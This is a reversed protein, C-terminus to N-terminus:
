PSTEIIKVGSVYYIKRGGVSDYVSSLSQRTVMSAVDNRNNTSDTTLYLHKDDSSIDVIPDWEIVGDSRVSLMRSQTPTTREPINPYYLNGNVTIDNFTSSGGSGGGVPTNPALSSGLPDFNKITQLDTYILNSNIDLLESKILFTENPASIQWPVRTIFVDPSFGDDGYVRVSLNSIYSQCYKPVIVLTGYFDNQPTFFYFQNEINLSSNGIKSSTINAINLGYKTSFTKEQGISPYSGTIYFSLESRTESSNKLIIASVEVIYQVNANFEMFNSDYASGSQILFQGMNFPVYIADRNTNVSDNKVMLYDNGSLNSPTPSSIFVTNVSKNPSYTMSLNNSSTFWYHSIHQSNYFKGLLNYYQNQTYDDQLIERAVVPEDAIISYDGNSILSKRYVKHRAVYGSFTRINRYTIDAYSQYVGYVVGGVTSTQYSTPSNNYNIFQYSVAADANVINTVTSNGKSDKYYYPTSTQLTTNNLVNSIFFSAKDYVNLIKGTLPERIQYISLDINYGTMLANFSGSDPTTPTVVPSTLTLRYDVELNQQNVSALNTDKPPNCALGNVTGLFSINHILGTSVSSTLVPVVASDVEFTPAQYFRARSTNKLTKNITINSQWKVSRGDNLTGYLILKGVGDATDNYVYAAFVFATTEKYTYVTVDTSSQAQEIYLNNGAADLCEVLIPSNAKLYTSGNFSFSNKGATFTPNFESVVFYRSLYDSDTVDAQKTYLGYSVGKRGYSDILNLAM